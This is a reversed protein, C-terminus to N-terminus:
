DNGGLRWRRRRTSPPATGLPIEAQIPGASARRPDVGLIATRITTVDGTRWWHFLQVTSVVTVSLTAVFEPRSYVQTPRESPYSKHQHNVVLVGGTVPEPRHLQPWTELHRALDSVLREQAAGSASKVEVLRWPPGEASVLLDASKTGGLEKDLDITRVGANTLVQAVAHVLEAGTGYLLGYRVPGARTEAEQLAQELPTKEEAYRASLEDLAQRATLEETTQLDPDIFHLSRARRLSNPVYELLARQVLWNLINDWDTATPIMTAPIIYWRQDDSPPIWAAVVPDGLADILVPQLRGQPEHQEEGSGDGRILHAGSLHLSWWPADAPRTLLRLALDRDASSLDPALLPRIGAPLRRGHVSTFPESLRVPMDDGIMAVVLAIESRLRAGALYRDRESTGGGGFAGPVLAAACDGTEMGLWRPQLGHKQWDLEDPVLRVRQRGRVRQWSGDQDSGPEPEGIHV